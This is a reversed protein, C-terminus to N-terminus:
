IIDKGDQTSNRGERTGLARHPDLPNPSCGRRYAHLKVSPTLISPSWHAFCSQKFIHHRLRRGPFDSLGLLESDTHVRADGLRKIRQSSVQWKLCAPNFSPKDFRAGRSTTFIWLTHRDRNQPSRLPLENVPYTRLPFEDFLRRIPQPTTIWPPSSGTAKSSSRNSSLPTESTACADRPM